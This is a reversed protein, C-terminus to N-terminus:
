QTGLFHHKCRIERVRNKGCGIERVEGEFGCRSCLNRAIHTYANIVDRVAEVRFASRFVLGGSLYDTFVDVIRAEPDIGAVHESMAMLVDVLGVPVSWPPRDWLVPWAEQIFRPWDEPPNIWPETECRLLRALVARQYCEDELTNSIM